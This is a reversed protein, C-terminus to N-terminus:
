RYPNILENMDDMLGQVRLCRVCSFRDCECRKKREVVFTKHLEAYKKVDRDAHDMIKLAAEQPPVVEKEHISSM